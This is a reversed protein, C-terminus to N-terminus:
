DFYWDVGLLVGATLFDDTFEYELYTTATFDLSRVVHLAILPTEGLSAPGRGLRLIRDTEDEDRYATIQGTAGLGVSWYEHLDYIFSAGAAASFSSTRARFFGTLFSAQGLISTSEGLSYRVRGALLPTYVVGRAGANPDRPDGSYAHQSRRQWGFGALGAVGELELGEELIFGYSWLLPFIYNVREAVGYRYYLGGRWDNELAENYPRFARAKGLNFVFEHEGDNLWLPRRSSAMPYQGACGALSVAACLM